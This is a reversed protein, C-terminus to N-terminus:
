IFPKSVDRALDAISPPDPVNDLQDRMVSIRSNNTKVRGNKKHEAVPELANLPIRWIVCLAKQIDPPKPIPLKQLNATNTEIFVKSNKTGKPRSAYLICGRLTGNSQKYEGLSKAATATCEFIFHERKKVDFVSVYVHTRFGIKERCPVCASDDITKGEDNFTRECPTTRGRFFHTDCVLVDECTVIGQLAGNAPTRRLDFGHDGSGQPISNRFVPM